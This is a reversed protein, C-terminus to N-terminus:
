NVPPLEDCAQEIVDLAQSLGDGLNGDCLNWWVGRQQAIFLNAVDHLKTAQDAHGYAGDCSQSGGIGLYVERKVDGKIAM